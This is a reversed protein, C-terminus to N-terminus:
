SKGKKMKRKFRRFVWILRIIDMLAQKVIKLSAGKSEGTQRILYKSKVEIPQYGLYILKSCIESEVLSSRIELKLKKLAVNKYVKVWNVDKFRLGLFTKNLKSNFWTLINRFFNYTTNEIRYFALISKEPINKHPVLEELDFQGDGPIMVVNEGTSNRYGTHLAEGIGENTEHCIYNVNTYGKELLMNQILEDSKDSSGDNVLVIEGDSTSIVALKDQVDQIVREINGEENYCLVIISWSQTAQESM